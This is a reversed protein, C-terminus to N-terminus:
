ASVKVIPVVTGVLREHVRIGHPDYCPDPGGYTDSYLAQYDGDSRGAPAGDRFLVTQGHDLSGDYWNLRISLAPETAAWAEVRGVQEGLGEFSLWLAPRHPSLPTDAPTRVRFAEITLERRWFAEARELADAPGDIFLHHTTDAVLLRYATRRAQRSARRRQARNPGASKFTPTM